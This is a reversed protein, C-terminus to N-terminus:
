CTLERIAEILTACEENPRKTFQASLRDLQTSADPWRVVFVKGCDEVLQYMRARTLGLQRSRFRVSKGATEEGLQIEVLREHTTGADHRIQDILRAVINERIEKATPVDDEVVVSDIWTEVNLINKPVLRSPSIDHSQFARLIGVVSHFVTLISRVRKEGHTKLQRIEALTYQTYTNLPKHWLVSPLHQLSPALHGLTETSVKFAEVLECWQRWQPETIESPDFQEPETSPSEEFSITDVDEEGETGDNVVRDLLM